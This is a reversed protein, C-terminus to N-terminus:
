HRLSYVAACYQKLKTLLAPIDYSARLGPSFISAKGEKVMINPLTVVLRVEGKTELLTLEQGEESCTTGYWRPGPAMSLASQVSLIGVQSAMSTKPMSSALYISAVSMNVDLGHNGEIPDYSVIVEGEPSIM